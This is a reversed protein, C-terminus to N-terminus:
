LLEFSTMFKIMLLNYYLVISASYGIGVPRMIHLSHASDDPMFFFFQRQGTVSKIDSALVERLKKSNM